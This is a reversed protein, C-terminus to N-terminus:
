NQKLGCEIEIWEGHMRICLFGCPWKEILDGSCGFYKGKCQPFQDELMNCTFGQWGVSTSGFCIVIMGVLLCRSLTKKM